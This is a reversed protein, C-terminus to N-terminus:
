RNENLDRRYTIKINKADGKSVAVKSIYDAFIESDDTYKKDEVLAQEHAYLLDEYSFSQPTHANILGDRKIHEEIVGFSNIRKITDTTMTASIASNFVKAVALNDIIIDKTVFPRAGDHICVFDTNSMKLELLANYVSGQRSDSGETFSVVESLEELAEKLLELEGEKYVIIIKKFYKLQVFPLTAMYIISKDDKLKQFEKKEDGFRLSSGACLIIAAFNM